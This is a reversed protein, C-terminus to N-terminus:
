GAEPPPPLPMWHSPADYEIDPNPKGSEPDILQFCEWDCEGWHIYTETDQSPDRDDGEVYIYYGACIAGNPYYALIETGDKPATEILQWKMEM